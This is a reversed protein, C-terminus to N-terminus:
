RRRANAAGVGHASRADTTVGKAALAREVLALARGDAVMHSTVRVVLWGRIAAESYKEADNEFGAPRTHRGQVWTGGEVECAVMLAPWALDFRWRRPKAFMVEREPAPLGILSCEMELQDEWGSRSM